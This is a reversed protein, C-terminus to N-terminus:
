PKHIFDYDLMTNMSKAPVKYDGLQVNTAQNQDYVSQFRSFNKVLKEGDPKEQTADKYYDRELKTQGPKLISYPKNGYSNYGQYGVINNLM